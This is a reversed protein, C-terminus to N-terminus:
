MKKFPKCFFSFFSFVFVRLHLIDHAERLLLLLNNHTMQNSKFYLHFQAIAVSLGICSCNNVYLIDNLSTENM